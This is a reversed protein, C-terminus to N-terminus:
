VIEHKSCLIDRQGQQCQITHKDHFDERRTIRVLGSNLIRYILFELQTLHSFVWDSEEQTSNEPTWEMIITIEKRQLLNQAGKLAEIEAGEIDMRLFDIKQNAFYRDLSVVEVTVYKKLNKQRTRFLFVENDASGSPGSTKFSATGLATRLIPFQLQNETKWVGKNIVETCGAYGNMQLNESLIPILEPNAEFCYVMGYPGTAKALNLAHYGCCAGCEAIHMGPKVFQAIAQTTEPEYVGLRELMGQQYPIRDRPLIIRHGHVTPLTITQDPEM